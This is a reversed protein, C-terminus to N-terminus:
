RNVNIDGDTCHVTHSAACWYYSGNSTVIKWQEKTGNFTISTLNTCNYFAESGISTVGGPITISTLSSCGLFADEGISTLEDNLAISILGSCENFAYATISKTGADITVSTNAAM